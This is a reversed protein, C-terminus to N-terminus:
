EERQRPELIPSGAAGDPATGPHAGDRPRQGPGCAEIAEQITERFRHLELAAAEAARDSGGILLQRRLGESLELQVGMVGPIRNCLNDPHRGRFRPHRAVPFNGAALASRVQDRFSGPNGGVFVAPEEGRCGHVVILARCRRIVELALPEDFRHSAIHLRANDRSRIGAFEYFTHENGAIARAIESTGWEIRGGHPAVVAVRSPGRRLRIVYDVGQACAKRLERYCSYRDKM